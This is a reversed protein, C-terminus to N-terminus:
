IVIKPRKSAQSYGDKLVNLIQDYKVFDLGNKPHIHYGEHAKESIIRVKTMDELLLTSNTKIGRFKSGEGCRKMKFNYKKLFVPFQTYVRRPNEPFNPSLRVTYFYEFFSFIINGLEPIEWYTFPPEHSFVLVVLNDYVVELGSDGKQIIEIEARNKDKVSFKFDNDFDTWLSGELEYDVDCSGGFRIQNLFLNFEKSLVDPRNITGM